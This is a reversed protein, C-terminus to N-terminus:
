SASSFSSDVGGVERVIRVPQDLLWLSQLAIAVPEVGEGPLPETAGVADREPLAEMVYVGGGVM